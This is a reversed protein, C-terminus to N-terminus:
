GAIGCYTREVWTFVWTMHQYIQRASYRSLHVTHWSHMQSLWYFVTFNNPGFSQNLTLIKRRCILHPAQPRTMVPFATMKRVMKPKKTTNPPPSSKLQSCHYLAQLCHASPFLSPCISPHIPLYITSCISQLSVPM